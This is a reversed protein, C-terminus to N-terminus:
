AEQLFRTGFKVQGSQQLNNENDTEINDKRTEIRDVIM